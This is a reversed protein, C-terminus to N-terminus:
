LTGRPVVWRTQVDSVGAIVDFDADYHLLALDHEQATAALLLDIVGPGRHLGRACLSEQWNRAQRQAAVSTIVYQYALARDAEVQRYEQLSRASYLLELDLIDCSFLLGADLLEDLVQAVPEHGWRALASKDVLYGNL